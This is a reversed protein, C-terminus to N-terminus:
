IGLWRPKRKELFARAGEQADQSNRVRRWADTALKRMDEERDAYAARALALSERVAVPANAAIREALVLACEVVKDDNVVANALGLEYAREGRIVDGTLLLEVAVVPPVSRPLRYAGGAGAIRGRKVEPLAFSARQGCVVMDCALALEMGGGVAYGRVAAIWPKHRLANAFGAFGGRKTIASGGQGSAIATLDAGACFAQEGSGTLVAVRISSDGEVAEVITELAQAMVATIANRAQPRNLTVLAIHEQMREVRVEGGWDQQDVSDISM